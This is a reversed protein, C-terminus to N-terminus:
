SPRQGLREYNIAELKAEICSAPFITRQPMNTVGQGPHVWFLEFSVKQLRLAVPWGGFHFKSSEAGRGLISM